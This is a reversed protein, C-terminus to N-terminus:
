LRQPGSTSARKGRIHRSSASLTQCLMMDRAQPAATGASTTTTTSAVPPCSARGAHSPMRSAHLAAPGLADTTMVAGVSSSSALALASMPGNNVLANVSKLALASNTGAKKLMGWNRPGRTRGAMPTRKGWSRPRAPPRSPAEEDLEESSASSASDSSSMDSTSGLSPYRGKRSGRSFTRSAYKCPKNHKFQSAASWLCWSQGKLFFTHQFQWPLWAPVSHGIRHRKQLSLCSYGKNSHTLRTHRRTLSQFFDFGAWSCRLTKDDKSCRIILSSPKSSTSRALCLLSTWFITLSRASCLARKGPSMSSSAVDMKSMFGGWFLAM